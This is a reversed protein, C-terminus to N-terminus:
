PQVEVTPMAALVSPDRLMEGATELASALVEIKDAATDAPVSASISVFAGKDDFDFTLITTFNQGLPVSHIELADNGILHLQLRFEQGEETTTQDTM